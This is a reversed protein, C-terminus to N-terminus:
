DGQQEKHAPTFWVLSFREGEFPLTWHLRRWGDFELPKYRIDCPEGEVCLAGGAYDGLGVILSLSQGFGAGSDVHPKFTARRNIAVMTSQPRAPMLTRELAFVAQVLDAFLDNGRPAVGQVTRGASFSGGQLPDDVELVRMRARSTSPWQGSADALRLLELVRVYEDPAPALASGPPTSIPTRSPVTPATTSAVASTDLPSLYQPRTEEHSLALPKGYGFALSGDDIRESTSQRMTMFFPMTTSTSPITPALSPSPRATSAPPTASHDGDLPGNSSATTRLAVPSRLAETRVLQARIRPCVEMEMEHLWASVGSPSASASACIASVLELRFAVQEDSEWHAVAGGSGIEPGQAIGDKRLVDNAHWGQGTGSTSMAEESKEEGCVQDVAGSDPDCQSLPIPLTTIRRDNFISRKTTHWAFRCERLYSLGSPAAPTEIINRPSLAHAVFSEPLWSRYVAVATGVMRRLQEQLFGDGHVRLLLFERGTVPDTRVSDARVSDNSPSIIEIYFRDVTRATASDQPSVLGNPSSSRNCFNHWRHYNRIDAQAASNRFKFGGKGAVKPTTFLKLVDKLRKLCDKRDQDCLQNFAAKHPPLIAQTLLVFDYHRHTCHQEAHLPVLLQSLFFVVVGSKALQSKMAVLRELPNKHVRSISISFVDGCSAADDDQELMSNMRYTSGSARIVSCESTMLKSMLKHVYRASLPPRYGVLLTYMWRSQSMSIGCDDELSVSSINRPVSAVRLSCGNRLHQHLKNKSTFPQLCHSCPHLLKNQNSPSGDCFKPISDKSMKTLKLMVIQVVISALIVWNLPHNTM